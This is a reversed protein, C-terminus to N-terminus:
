IKVQKCRRAASQRRRRVLQGMFGHHNQNGEILHMQGDRDPSPRADRGDLLHGFSAPKEHKKRMYRRFRGAAAVLMTEAKQRTRTACQYTIALTVSSIQRIKSKNGKWLWHRPRSQRQFTIRARTEVWRLPMRASQSPGRRPRREVPGMTHLPLSITDSIMRLPASKPQLNTERHKNISWLRSKWM